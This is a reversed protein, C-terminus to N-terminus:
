GPPNLQYWRWVGSECLIQVCGGGHCSMGPVNCSTGAQPSLSPCGPTPGDCSWLVPCETLCMGPNAPDPCCQNGNNCFAWDGTPRAQVSGQSICQCHSGNEYWCDLAADPCPTGIAQPTAPCSVSLPPTSCKPQWPETVEWQQRVSCIAKTRCEPRPDSGWTCQALPQRWPTVGGGSWPETCSSGALPPDEPCGTATGGTSVTGGSGGGNATTGGSTGSSGVAGTVRGCGALGLIVFTAALWSPSIM